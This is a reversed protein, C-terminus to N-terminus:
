GCCITSLICRVPSLHMMHLLPNVRPPVLPSRGAHAPLPFTRIPRYLLPPALRDILSTILAHYALLSHLVLEPVDYVGLDPHVEHLETQDVVDADVVFPTVDVDCEGQRAWHARHPIQDLLLDLSFGQADLADLRHVGLERELRHPVRLHHAWCGLEEEAPLNVVRASSGACGSPSAPKRKRCSQPSGTMAASTSRM